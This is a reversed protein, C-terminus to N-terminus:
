KKKEKKHDSLCFYKKEKAKGKKKKEGIKKTSLSDMFHLGVLCGIGNGQTVLL